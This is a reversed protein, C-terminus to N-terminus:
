RWDGGVRELPAPLYPNLVSITDYDASDSLVEIRSPVRGTRAGVDRLAYELIHTHRQM